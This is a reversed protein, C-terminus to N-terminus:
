TSSHDSPLREVLTSIGNGKFESVTTGDMMLPREPTRVAEARGAPDLM